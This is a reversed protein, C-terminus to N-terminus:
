LQRGQYSRNLDTLRQLVANIKEERKIKSGILGGLIGIILSAILLILFTRLYLIVSRGKPIMLTTGIGIVVLMIAWLSAAWSVIGYFLKMKLIVALFLFPFLVLITVYSFLFVNLIGTYTSELKASRAFYNLVWAFIFPVIAGLCYSLIFYTTGKEIKPIIIEASSPQFLLLLYLIVSVIMIFLGERIPRTEKIELFTKQPETIVGLFLHTLRDM